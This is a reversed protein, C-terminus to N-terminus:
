AGGELWGAANELTSNFEKINALLGGGISGVDKSVTELLMSLPVDPGEDERSKRKARKRGNQIAAEIDFLNNSLTKKFEVRTKEGEFGAQVDDHELAIEQRSKQLALIEMRLKKNNRRFVKTKKSNATWLDNADQLDLLKENLSEKFALTLNIKRRMQKQRPSDPLTQMEQTMRGLHADITEELITRTTDAVTIGGIDYGKMRMVSITLKKKSQIGHNIHRKM